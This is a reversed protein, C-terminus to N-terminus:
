TTSEDHFAEDLHSTDARAFAFLALQCAILLIFRKM